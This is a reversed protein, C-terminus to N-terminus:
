FVGGITPDKCRPMAPTAQFFGQASMANFTSLLIVTNQYLVFGDPIETGPTYPTWDLLNGSM